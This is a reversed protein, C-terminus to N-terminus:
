DAHGAPRQRPKGDNERHWDWLRDPCGAPSRLLVRAATSEPSPSMRGANLPWMSAKRRISAIGGGQKTRELRGIMKQIFGSAFNMAASKPLESRIPQLRLACFPVAFALAPDASNIRGKHNADHEGVREAFLASLIPCPTAPRQPRILLKSLFGPNPSPNKCQIWHLLRQRRSDPAKFPGNRRTQPM